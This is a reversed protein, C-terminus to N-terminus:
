AGYSAALAGYYVGNVYTLVIEDMRNVATSLVPEVDANNWMVTPWTILRTGTADQKLFLKYISGEKPNAFTLTRNGALTVYQINGNNWDLAITAGDTLSFPTGYYQSTFKAAGNEDIALREIRSTAGAPTTHIGAKCPRSTASWTGTAHFDLSAGVRMDTGDHGRAFIVFLRTANTVALPSAGTGLARGGNLTPCDNAAGTTYGDFYVALIGDKQGHITGAPTTPAGITLRDNTADWALAAEDALTDADTAYPIRGATLVGNLTAAPLDGVALADFVAAGSSVQMLFKRTATANLAIGAITDADSFAAVQNAAGSGDVAGVTTLSSPAYVETGDSYMPVLKGQTAASLAVGAGAATKVTVSFAGACTNWVLWARVGTAGSPVILERNGTLTGSLKLVAYRSQATTLTVNATTISIAVAEALAREISEMTTRWPVEPTGESDEIFLLDYLPTAM